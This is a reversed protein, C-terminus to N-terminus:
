ASAAMMVSGPSPRSRACSPTIHSVKSTVPMGTCAMTACVPVLAISAARLRNVSSLSSSRSHFSGARRWASHHACSCGILKLRPRSLPPSHFEDTAVVQVAPVALALACPCTIILVAVAIMVSQHLGAGIMLWGIAALLATLHVMPAYLRSVRDALRVYFNRASTAGDLLRQVDDILTGEGGATVTVTLAGAGNLSGAYVQAGPGVPRPLTEGTVLAEDVASVGSAVVGDAGMREGSAVLIHDGAALAQVPVRVPVGDPGLRHAMEGRLAAVNGAVARTRRRAEHDLYRGALLFFLLMVASDFYAHEQHLATEVVSMGLALIVGITIPVDM